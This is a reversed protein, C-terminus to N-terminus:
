PSSPAWRLCTPRPSARAPQRKCGASHVTHRLHSGRLVAAGTVNESDYVFVGDARLMPAYADASSQCLAVLLDAGLLEPYDVPDDSIIM